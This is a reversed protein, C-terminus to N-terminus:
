LKKGYYVKLILRVMCIYFICCVIVITILPNFYGAVIAALLLGMTVFWYSNAGAMEWIRRSREDHAKIYQARLKQENKMALLNRVVGLLLLAAFGVSVGDIFGRWFSNRRAEASPLVYGEQPLYFHVIAILLALVVIGILSFINQIKLKNRYTEM